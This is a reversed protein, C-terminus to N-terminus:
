LLSEKLLRNIYRIKSDLEKLERKLKKIRKKIAKAKRFDRIKKLLGEPINKGIYTNSIVKGEKDREVLYYYYYRSGAKNKVWRHNIFISCNEIEYDKFGWKTKIKEVERELVEILRALEDRKEVLRKTMEILESM